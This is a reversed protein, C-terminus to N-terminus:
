DRCMAKFQPGWDPPPDPFPSASCPARLRELPAAACQEAADGALEGFTRKCDKRANDRGAALREPSEVPSFGLERRMKALRRKGAANEPEFGCLLWAEIEPHAAALVVRFSWRRGLPLELAAALAAGLDRTHDSDRGIVVAAVPPTADFQFRLLTRQFLQTDPPLRGQGFDGHIRWRRALPSAPESTDHLDHFAEHAGVGRWCRAGDRAQDEFWDHGRGALAEALVRDALHTVFRADGLSEAAIGLEVPGDPTAM